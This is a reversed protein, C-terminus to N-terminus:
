KVKKLCIEILKAILETEKADLEFQQKLLKKSSSPSSKVLIEEEDDFFYM